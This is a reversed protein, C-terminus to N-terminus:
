DKDILGFAFNEEEEPDEDVEDWVRYLGEENDRHEGISKPPLANPIQIHTAIATMM